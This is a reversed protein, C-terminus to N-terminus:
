LVPKMDTNQFITNGHFGSNQCHKLESSGFVAISSKDKLLNKLGKNSSFKSPDIWTGYKVSYKPMEKTAVFKVATVTVAFMLFAILIAKINKM